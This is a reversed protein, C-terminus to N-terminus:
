ILSVTKSKIDLIKLNLRTITLGLSFKASGVVASVTPGTSTAMIDSYDKLANLLEELLSALENGKVAPEVTQGKTALGLQISPANVLFQNAVKDSDETGVDITVKEGASLNIYNKAAMLISDQGANFVLRNSDLLIWKGKYEGVNALTINNEEPLAM